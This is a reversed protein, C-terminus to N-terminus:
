RKKNTFHALVVIINSLQYHMSSSIVNNTSIIVKDTFNRNVLWKIKSNETYKKKLSIFSVM